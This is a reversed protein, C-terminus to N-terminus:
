NEIIEDMVGLVPVEKYDKFILV